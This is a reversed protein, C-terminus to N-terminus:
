SKNRTRLTYIVGGAAPDLSVKIKSFLIAGEYKAIFQDAAQPTTFAGIVKDVVQGFEPLHYANSQGEYDVVTAIVVWIMNDNM